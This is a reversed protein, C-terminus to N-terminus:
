LETYIGTNGYTKNNHLERTLRKVMRAGLISGHERDAQSRIEM